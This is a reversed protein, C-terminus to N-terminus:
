LFSEQEMEEPVFEPEPEPERKPEIWEFTGPETWRFEDKNDNLTRYTSASISSRKGSALGARELLRGAETSRVIGGSLRAIAVLALKQSPLGSLTEPDIHEHRLKTASQVDAAPHLWMMLGKMTEQAADRKRVVEDLAELTREFEEDLHAIYSELDGVNLELTDAIGSKGM